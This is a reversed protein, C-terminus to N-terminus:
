NWFLTRSSYICIGYFGRCSSQVFYRNASSPIQFHTKLKQFIASQLQNTTGFFSSSTKLVTWNPTGYFTTGDDLVVKLKYDLEDFEHFNVFYFHVPFTNLKEPVVFGQEALTVAPQVLAKWPLTGHKKHALWM